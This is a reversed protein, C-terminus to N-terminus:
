ALWVMHLGDFSPFDFGGWTTMRNHYVQILHDESEYPRKAQCANFSGAALYTLKASSWAHQIIQCAHTYLDHQLVTCLVPASEAQLLVM